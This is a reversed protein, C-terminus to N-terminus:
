GEDLLALHEGSEGILWLIMKSSEIYDLKTCNAIRDVITCVADDFNMGVDLADKISEMYYGLGIGHVKWIVEVTTIRLILPNYEAQTAKHEMTKLEFLATAKEAKTMLSWKQRIDNDLALIESYKLVANSIEDNNMGLRKAGDIMLSIYVKQKTEANLNKLFMEDM